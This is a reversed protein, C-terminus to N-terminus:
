EEAPQSAPQTTPVPPRGPVRPARAPPADDPVRRRFAVANLAAFPDPITLRLFPAPKERFSRIRSVVIRRAAERTPDGDGPGDAPSRGRAGALFDYRDLRPARVRLLRGPPMPHPVAGKVIATPAPPAAGGLGRLPIPHEIEEPLLRPSDVLEPAPASTHEITIPVVSDLKPAAPAATTPGWAAADLGPRLAAALLEAASAPAAVDAGGATPVVEVVLQGATGEKPLVQKNTELKLLAEEEMTLDSQFVTEDTVPFISILTGSLDAGYVRDPKDPDPRRMTSGTFRWRVRGMPRGTPRDVIAREIPVKQTSGDAATFTLWIRVEPGTAAPGDGKAPKGPRVGLSAMAEHVKSPAAEFTVVTEHAKQGRPSPFTAIVELPYVDTLTPLKRPAIKCPISVTRRRRDVAILPSSRPTVLSQDAICVVAGNQRAESSGVHCTTLYILGGQVVPPGFVMGPLRASPDASVDFKWEVAGSRVSLAHVVGKLDAAYVVEGVIAVGAFFPNDAKYTWQPKGDTVNVARVTGDTATFVATYSRVAVPSLVGGPVDIRWQVKGDRPNVAVVEGAAGPILKRDYRISSCGVLVIRSNVYTPGAWPNHKLPVEWQVKGDRGSFCILCRKGIKEDDLYASGALVRDGYVALPADVHYKGAGEQWLLKPRPKPLSDETPAVAFDPDTKKAEEYKATLEKWRQELIKEAAALDMEKESGELTVRKLYVCLVGGDGAGTYVRDGSIVPSAEMHVLKGRVPYQWVSKGTEAELCYLIADDTQHMGDGFVLMGGSITPASVTPRKIFPAAKSWVVREAAGGEVALSHLVGTNFAGLGAVYVNELQPTASAVYQEAARHVWLIAPSEPGPRNDVCGTRHRSGRYTPWQQGWGGAPAILLVLCALSGAM